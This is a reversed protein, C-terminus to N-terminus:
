ASKLNKLVEQRDNFPLVKGQVIQGEEHGKGALLVIDGKAANDM